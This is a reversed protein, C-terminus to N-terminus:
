SVRDQKPDINLDPRNILRPILKAAIKHHNDTLMGIGPPIPKVEGLANLHYNYLLTVVYITDLVRSMEADVLENEARLLAKKPGNESKKGFKASNWWTFVHFSPKFEFASNPYGDGKLLSFSKDAVGGKLEFSFIDFPVKKNKIPFMGSITGEPKSIDVKVGTVPTSEGAIAHTIDQIIMRNFAKPDILNQARLLYPLSIMLGLMLFKLTKM